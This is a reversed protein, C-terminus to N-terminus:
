RRDTRRAGQMAGRERWRRADKRWKRWMRIVGTATFSAMHRTTLYTDICGETQHQPCAEGHQVIVPEKAAVSLTCMRVTVGEGTDLRTLGM